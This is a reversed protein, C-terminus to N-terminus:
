FGDSYNMLSRLYGGQPKKTPGKPTDYLISAHIGERDTTVIAYSGQGGSRPLSLSGPNLLTIGDMENLYPVHTHGFFAGKCDEEKCAAILDEVGRKVHDRHGHTLLIKGCEVYLFEHERDVSGDMNGRICFCDVGLERALEQGDRKYDGLHVLVDIDKLRRYIEDAREIKGHTDSIVM